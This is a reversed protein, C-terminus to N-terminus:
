PGSILRSSAKPYSTHPQPYLKTTLDPISFAPTHIVEQISPQRLSPM